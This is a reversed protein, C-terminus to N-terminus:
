EYRLADIPNLSAAKRAPYFGFIVGISSSFVFSLVLSMYDLSMKWNFYESIGYILGLGIIVGIIGGILSILLSEILFQYLIDTKKAGISM